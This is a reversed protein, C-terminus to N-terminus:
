HPDLESSIEDNENPINNFYIQKVIEYAVNDDDIRWLKVSPHELIWHFEGEPNLLDELQEISENIRRQILDEDTEGRRIMQNRIFVEVNIDEPPLMIHIECNPFKEIFKLMANPHIIALPIKGSNVADLIDNGRFGYLTNGTKANPIKFTTAFEGSKLMEIYQRRGPFNYDVGPIEINKRPERDTTSLIYTFDEPYNTTLQNQVFNKGSGTIGMLIVVHIDPKPEFQATYHEIEGDTPLEIEEDIM